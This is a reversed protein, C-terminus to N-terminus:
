STIENIRCQLVIYQPWLVEGVVDIVDSIYTFYMQYDSTSQDWSSSTEFPVPPGRNESCHVRHVVILAHLFNSAFRVMCFYKSVEDFYLTNTCNLARESSLSAIKDFLIARLRERCCEVQSKQQSIPLIEM